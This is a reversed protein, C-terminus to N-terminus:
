PAHLGSPGPAGFFFAKMIGLDVINVAGDGNFDLTPDSGFFGDRFLGLDLVNVVGDNSVDPDCRNGYGDNDSDLQVNGGDDPLAPGNALAVCNDIGDRIGDGDTDIALSVIWDDLTEVAQMDVVTSGLPPMREPGLTHMRLSVISRAPDGPAILRAEAVGLDGVTPHVDIIGLDNDSTSYLLQM